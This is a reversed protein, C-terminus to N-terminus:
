AAQCISFPENMISRSILPVPITGHDLVLDHFVKLSYQDKCKKKFRDRLDMLLLKGIIYTMPQTPNMAYRKVEAVANVYELGATEVLMSVAEDFTMNSTHIGTDIVVRCARWQQNKLQFMRVRPDTYFGQEYMMEECYMAWGEALLSSSTAKALSSKVNMARTLQLHHGPYGEHLAAIPISYVCHGKLQDIQQDDSLLENAPTVFFYGTPDTEFPAPPLYAAYPITSREFNPTHIVKLTDVDPMSLIDHEIIFERCGQVAGKYLDILHDKKPYENKLQKLQSKYDSSPDIQKAIEILADDTECIIRSGIISLDNPGYTLFHESFLLQEYLKSGLAFDGNSVPLLEENLWRDYDRYASIVNVNANMIDVSLSPLKGAIDSIAEQFFTIGGEAVESAVQTFIHPPNTINQKSIELMEPIEQMRKLLSIARQELPAFNRVLLGYCGWIGMSTYYAPNNEWPRQ